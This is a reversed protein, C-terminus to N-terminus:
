QRHLETLTHEIEKMVADYDTNLCALKNRAILIGHIDIDARPYGEKDDLGGKLGPMGPGTLYEKLRIAEDEMKKRQEDLELLRQRCKVNKLEDVNEM